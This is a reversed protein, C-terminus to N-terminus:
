SRHAFDVKAAKLKQIFAKEEQDNCEVITHFPKDRKRWEESARALVLFLSQLEAPAELALLEPAREFVLLYADGPLWELDNLCEDLANWNEGFYSPFQLAAAMEDFLGTTTRAKRGRIRRLVFAAKDRPLRSLEEAKESALVHISPGHKSLLRKLDM